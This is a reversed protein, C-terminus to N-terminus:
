AAALHEENMKWKAVRAMLFIGVVFLLSQKVAYITITNLFSWNSSHGIAFVAIDSVIWVVQFLLNIRQLRYYNFLVVLPAFVAWLFWVPCLILGVSIASSWQEGFVFTVCYNIFLFLAVHGILMLVTLYKITRIVLPYASEFSLSSVKQYFVDALSKGVIVMYVASFKELFSIYGSQEASYFYSSLVVLAQTVCAYLFYAPVGSIAIDKFERIQLLVKSVVEYFSGKILPFLQSYIVRLMIAVAVVQGLFWAWILGKNSNADNAYYGLFVGLLTVVLAQLIRAISLLKYGRHRNVWYYLIQFWAFACASLPVLYLYDGLSSIASLDGRSLSILFLILVGLIAFSASILFAGVSVYAAEEDSKPLMVVQEFRGAIISGLIGVLAAFVAFVGFEFPSYLRSLIPTFLLPIASALASGSSLIGINRIIESRFFKEAFM